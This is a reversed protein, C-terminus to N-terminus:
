SPIRTQSLMLQALPGDGALLQEPPGEAVIQGHELMVVRDATKITSLRHAIILTTREQQLRAVASQLARENEGDLNSVAEDMILIPANTLFARAVAIRQRQGGSLRLGREGARTEYGKPLSTIFDHVAALRAAGEVDRDTADPRGLRINDALSMDFLYIDQPVVGILARLDELRMQRIDRDGITVSGQDPDYWRMLLRACTTKGAGSHGVLAVTEGPQIELSVQQLTTRDVGKYTFSVDKFYVPFPAEPAPKPTEPDQVLPERQLLAFVRDAAAKISGFQGAIGSLSVVPGFVAGAFVVAVPYMAPDLQGSTVLHASFALVVLMGLATFGQSVSSELGARLGYKVQVGILSGSHKRLRAQTREQAGFMTLERLGQVADIVEANLEGLQARMRDGQVKAQKRLMGPMILVLLLLPILLAPLLPNLSFLFVLVATPVILCCVVAGISHAYFWELTEVDAMATSVVDGSRDDVLGAPALQTLAGYVESRLSALVRYALDHALWSELWVCLASIIVLAALLWLASTLAEGSAGSALAGVIWAGVGASAIGCGLNTLGALMTLVFVLKHPRLKELLGRWGKQPRSM